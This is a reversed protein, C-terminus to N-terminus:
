INIKALADRLTNILEREKGLYFHNAGAITQFYLGYYEAQKKLIKLDCFEDQEGCVILRIKNNIKKFDFDFYNNPPSVLVAAAFPNNIRSMVQSGVWAGFSYGALSLKAIKIEKLYECVAIIDEQEGMGEDYTGTSRGVGRFNFRVTTYNEAAYAEQIAEVVNNHMSGGMLSHPHCIVVAREPSSKHMLAEIAMEKYNIYIQEEKMMMAAKGFRSLPLRM